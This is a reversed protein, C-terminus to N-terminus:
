PTLMAILKKVYQIMGYIKTTLMNTVEQQFFGGGDPPLVVGYSSTDYEDISTHSDDQETGAFLLPNYNVYLREDEPMLAFYEIWELVYIKSVVDEDDLPLDNYWDWWKEPDLAYKEVMEQIVPDNRLQEVRAAVDSDSTEAYAQLNISCVTLILALMLSLAKKM